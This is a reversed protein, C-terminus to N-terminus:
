IHPVESGSNKIRLQIFQELNKYPFLPYRGAATEFLSDVKQWTMRIKALTGYEVVRWVSDKPGGEALMTQRASDEVLELVHPLADQESKLNSTARMFVACFSKHGRKEIARQGIAHIDFIEAVELIGEEEPLHPNKYLSSWACLGKLPGATIPGSAPKPRQGSRFFEEKASAAVDSASLLGKIKPLNAKPKKPPTDPKEQSPPAFAAKPMHPLLDYAEFFAHVHDLLSAQVAHAEIDKLTAVAHIGKRIDFFDEPIKKDHAIQARCADFANLAAGRKDYPYNIRKLQADLRTRFDTETMSM